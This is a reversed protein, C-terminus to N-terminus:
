PQVEQTLQPYYLSTELEGLTLNRTDAARTVRLEAFIMNGAERAESWLDAQVRYVGDQSVRGQGDCLFEVQARGDEAAEAVAEDFPDVQASFDASVTQLILTADTKQRAQMGLAQAAGFMRILVVLAALLFFLLVLSEIYFSLNRHRNM